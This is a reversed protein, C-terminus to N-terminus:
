PKSTKRASARAEAVEATINGRIRGAAKALPQQLCKLAPLQKAVHRAAATSIFSASWLPPSSQPKCGTAPTTVGWHTSGTETGALHSRTVARSLLPHATGGGTQACASSPPHEELRHAEFLVKGALAKGGCSSSSLESSPPM